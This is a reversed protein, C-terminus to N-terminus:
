PRADTVERPPGLCRRRDPGVVAKGWWGCRRCRLRDGEAVWAWDHLPLEQVWELEKKM